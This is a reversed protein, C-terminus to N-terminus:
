EGRKIVKVKKTNLNSSLRYVLLAVILVAFPIAYLFTVSAPASSNSYIHKTYQYTVIICMLHSLALSLLVCLKSLLKLM